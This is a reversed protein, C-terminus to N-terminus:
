PCSPYIKATQEGLLDPLPLRFTLQGMSDWLSVNTPAVYAGAITQGILGITNATGAVLGYGCIYRMVLPYFKITVVRM